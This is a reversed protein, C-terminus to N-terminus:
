SSGPIKVRLLRGGSLSWDGMSSSRCRHGIAAPFVEKLSSLVNSIATALNLAPVVLFAVLMLILPCNVLLLRALRIGFALPARGLSHQDEYGRQTGPEPDWSGPELDLTGVVKSGSKRAMYGSIGGHCLLNLFLRRTMLHRGSFASLPEGLPFCLAAQVNFSM